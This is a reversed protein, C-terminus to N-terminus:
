VPKIRVNIPHAKSPTTTKLRSSSPNIAVKNQDGNNKNGTSIALKANGIASIKNNIVADAQKNRKIMLRSGTHFCVNAFTGTNGDLM